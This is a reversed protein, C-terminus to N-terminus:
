PTGEVGRHLPAIEEAEQVAGNGVGRRVGLRTELADGGENWRFFPAGVGLIEGHNNNEHLKISVLTVATRM